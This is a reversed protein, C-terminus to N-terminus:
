KKVHLRYQWLGLRGRKRELKFRHGFVESRQWGGREAAPEYGAARHVLIKFDLNDGRADVLWYESIGARHYAKRLLRTDKAVSSNSVIELVWDPSGEIELYREPDDDDRVLRARGAELSEWSVFVGEPINSVNASENSVLTGGFCMIGRDTEAILPFLGGYIATKVLVHAQIEEGSMDIIVQKDVFTVGVNEPLDDSKAWARFGALSFVTGPVRIEGRPSFFTCNSASDTDARQAPKPPKPITRIM